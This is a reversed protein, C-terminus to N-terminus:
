AALGITAAAIGILLIGLAIDPKPLSRRIGPNFLLLGGIFGFFLGGVHGGVSIGPITFTILLNFGIIMTLRSRLPDIGRSHQFVVMAGFLGFIAGSAGLTIGTSELITIGLAGGVLGTFYLLGFRVQGLIKELHPGLVWLAYMNFGLHIFSGPSHLFGSTVIRYWEGNAVGITGNRGLANEIFAYDFTFQSNGRQILWAVINIGILAYTLNPASTGLAQQM